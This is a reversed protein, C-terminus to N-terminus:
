FRNDIFERNFLDLVNIDISQFIKNGAMTKDMKPTMVRSDVVMRGSPPYPPRSITQFCIMNRPIPNTKNKIMEKTSREYRLYQCTINLM